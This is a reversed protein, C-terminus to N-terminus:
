SIAEELLRSTANFIRGRIFLEGLNVLVRDAVEVLRLGCEKRPPFAQDAEFLLFERAVLLLDPSQVRFLSLAEAPSHARSVITM